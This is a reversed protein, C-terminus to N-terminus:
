PGFIRGREAEVDRRGHRGLSWGTYDNITAVRRRLTRNGIVTDASEHGALNPDACYSVVRDQIRSQALDGTEPGKVGETALTWAHVVEEMCTDRYGVMPRSVANHVRVVGDAFKSFSCLNSILSCRFYVMQWDDPVRDLFEGARHEFHDCFTVDDELVLISNISDEIAAQVVARHSLLSGWHGQTFTTKFTHGNSKITAPKFFWLPIDKGPKMAWGDFPSIYFSVRDLIGIKRLRKKLRERREASRELSIVVIREFCELPHFM